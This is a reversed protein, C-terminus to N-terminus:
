VHARGIEPIIMKPFHSPIKLEYPTPTYGVKDKRCAFFIISISVALFIYLIYRM